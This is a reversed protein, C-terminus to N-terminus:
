RCTTVKKTRPCVKKDGLHCKWKLKEYLKVLSESKYFTLDLEGNVSKKGILPNKKEFSEIRFFFKNKKSFIKEFFFFVNKLLLDKSFFFGNIPFQVKGTTVNEIKKKLHTFKWKTFNQIEKLYLQILLLVLYM